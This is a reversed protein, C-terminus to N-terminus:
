GGYIRGPLWTAIAPIAWLVGLAALQLGVFPVVGRYIEGTSVEPPAVGRLFFLSFGFPPTLYSTQLNVAIMISLWVPDVEMALLVPAAIPVVIFLIEFTDIFMGLVFVVLMVLWVAGHVGGPMRALFEGVLAEGGLRTFVLSFVTAGFFIVYVMVTIILSQRSVETLVALFSRRTKGRAGIFAAALVLLGLATTLVGLAGALFSATTLGIVVGIWLWFLSRSVLEPRPRDALAGGILRVMALLIAGMAGVAAAETPTAVGAIISGLVAVILLLTPALAVVIRRHLDPDRATVMPPCSQPRVLSLGAVWATYLFSLLLGPIFAGAFLDGVSLTAPTFNGKALQVQSNATQMIVALFVLVTSPPIVQALSGTACILGSALSRDYGVRLMAPLSILAMTTVTAGVIGTSAALLTGVMIVSYGLGGRLRGFVEGLTTLLDEAIRSRELMVGMFVFLPVAVLVDNTLVGWYRLPLANFYSLDFAGFWHGILGFAFGVGALTFVVPYGMMLVVIVVVFMLISLIEGAFLPDSM